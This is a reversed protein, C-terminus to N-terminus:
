SRGTHTHGAASPRNPITAPRGLFGPSPLTTNKKPLTAARPPNVFFPDFSNGLDLTTPLGDPKKQAGPHLTAVGQQPVSPFADFMEPDLLSVDSIWSEHDGRPRSPLGSTLTPTPPSRMSSSPTPSYPKPLSLSPSDLTPSDFMSEAPALSPIDLKYSGRMSLNSSSAAKVNKPLTGLHGTGTAGHM